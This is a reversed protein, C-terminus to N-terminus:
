QVPGPLDAPDPRITGTLELAQNAPVTNAQVMVTKNQNGSRGKTNFEVVINGTGGPPIPEKPFTPVTCGCSAQAQTIILQGKGTNTFPFSHRVIAGAAVTGFNFTTDAFTMTPVKGGNSPGSILEDASLGEQKKDACGLMAALVLLFMLGRM